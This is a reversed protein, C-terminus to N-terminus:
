GLRRKKRATELVEDAKKGEQALFELYAEEGELYAEHSRYGYEKCANALISALANVAGTYLPEDKDPWKDFSLLEDIALGLLIAGVKMSRLKERVDPHLEEYASYMTKKFLPELYADDDIDVTGNKVWYIELDDDGVHDPDVGHAVLQKQGEKWLAKVRDGSTMSKDLKALKVINLPERAAEDDSSALELPAAADGTGRVIRASPATVDADVDIAASPSAM